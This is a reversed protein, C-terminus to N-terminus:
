VLIPFTYKPFYNQDPFGYHAGSPELLFHLFYLLLFYYCSGVCPAKDLLFCSRKWWTGQIMLMELGLTNNKESQIYDSCM